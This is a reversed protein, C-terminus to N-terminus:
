ITKICKARAGSFQKVYGKCDSQLRKSIEWENIHKVMSDGLIIISKQTKINNSKRIVQKGIKVYPFTIFNFLFKTKKPGPYLEVDGFTLLLTIGCFIM